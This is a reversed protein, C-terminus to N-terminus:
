EKIFLRKQIERDTDKGRAQHSPSSTYQRYYMCFIWIPQPKLKTNINSYLYLVYIPLYLNYCFKINIPILKQIDPPFIYLLSKKGFFKVGFLVVTEFDKNM